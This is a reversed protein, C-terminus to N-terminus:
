LIKKEIIPIFKVLYQLMRYKSVLKRIQILLYRKRDSKKLAKVFDYKIYLKQFKKTRSDEKSPSRLQPNGDIAENLDREWCKVYPKISDFACKGKETNILVVNIGNSKDGDFAKKAGLGWFDGLTIDGVRKKEAYDCSYCNKRYITSKLFADYYLSSNNKIAYIVKNNKTVTFNLGNADRFDCRDFDIKGFEYEMYSKLYTEPPVGHCVLDILLLNSYEKGLYGKLGAVQCPTGVFVVERGEILDGKLDRFALEIHSHVYKSGRIEDLENINDIRRHRCKENAVLSAGYAVGNHEIALRSLLTALGGSTSKKHEEENSSYAAYTQMPLNHVPPNIVPCAKECLKCQICKDIDIDPYIAGNSKDVDMTICNKPCINVCAFCATCKDKECILINM